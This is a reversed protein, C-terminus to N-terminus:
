VLIFRIGAARASEGDKEPRDGIFVTEELLFGQDDLIKRVSKGSPKLEDIGNTGPYYVADAKVDLVNLKREPAYDSYILIRKGEARLWNLLCLMKRNQHSHIYPLPADFMWRQIAAKLCQTEHIGTRSAAERIQEELPLVRFKETERIKRFYYIGLLEKIHTPHRFFHCGLRLAMRLRVPKQHYLTGDVDFIVGKIPFWDVPRGNQDLFEMNNQKM